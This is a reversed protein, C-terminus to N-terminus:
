GLLRRLSAGFVSNVAALSLKLRRYVARDRRVLDRVGARDYDNASSDTGFIVHHPEINGVTFLRRLAETRYIRPTGPTLDIFMEACQGGRRQRANLFKGYVALCEDCWPWSIHALAFRLGAIDLLPEFEVPRNYMSSPQGDWLIGSHFLIPRGAAAIARYVRLARPDGPFHRNCIVKFGLAGARVALAVQGAADKELPDIWYFPHLNKAAQCWWMVNELRKANSLVRSVWPFCAPAPSIVVGGDVGAALLRRAFAKRDEPGDYIHIHGDLTM